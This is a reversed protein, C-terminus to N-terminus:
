FEVEGTRRLMEIQEVGANQVALVAPRDHLPAVAVAVLALLRIVVVDALVAGTVEFQRLGLDFSRTHRQDARHGLLRGDQRADRGLEVVSQLM